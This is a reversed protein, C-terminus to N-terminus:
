MSGPVQYHLYFITRTMADAGFEVRIVNCLTVVTGKKVQLLAM